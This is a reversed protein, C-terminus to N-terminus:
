FDAPPADDGTISTPEADAPTMVHTPNGRGSPIADLRLEMPLAAREAASMSKIQRVIARGSAWVVTKEGDRERSVELKVQERTEGQIQVTGDLRARHLWFIDGAEVYGGERATLYQPKDFMGM